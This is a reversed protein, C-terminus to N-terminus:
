LTRAGALLLGRKKHAQQLWTAGAYNIDIVRGVLFVTGIVVLIIGAVLGAPTGPGPRPGVPPTGQWGWSPPPAGPPMGGAQGDPAAPPAPAAPGSPGATAAVPDFPSTADDPVSSGSRQAPDPTTM